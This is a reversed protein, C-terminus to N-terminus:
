FINEAGSTITDKLSGETFNSGGGVRYCLLKRRQMEADTCRQHKLRQTM